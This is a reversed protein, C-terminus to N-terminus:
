DATIIPDQRALWQNGQKIEASLCQERGIGRDASERKRAIGCVRSSIQWKVGCHRGLVFSLVM